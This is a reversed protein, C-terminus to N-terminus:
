IKSIILVRWRTNYVNWAERTEEVSLLPVDRIVCLQGNRSVPRNWIMISGNLQQTDMLAVCFFFVAIADHHNTRESETGGYTFRVKGKDTKGSNEPM